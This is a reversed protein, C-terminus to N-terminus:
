ANTRPSTPRAPQDPARERAQPRRVAWAAGALALASAAASLRVTTVYLRDRADEGSPPVIEISLDREHPPLPLRAEVAAMTWQRSHRALLVAISAALLWVFARRRGPRRRLWVETALSALVVMLGLPVILFRSSVRQSAILPLHLAHVPAYLRGFSLFALVAMPLVVRRAGRLSRLAAPGAVLLWALAIPGVYADFEWWNLGGMSGSGRRPFTVDRLAVLGAFVDGLSAYGTEFAQDRRGLLIVAAPVLRVLGLGAAWLLTAVIASRAPVTPLLLLLLLVCWVFVHYSGQMLMAGLLLGVHIPWRGDRAGGALDLVRLFFFPLFFYGGWMSHGIAFHATIHGNFALLLWLTVLVPPSLGHRRGIALVGALGVAQLLLVNTFVFADISMWRLLIVQPSLVTEPIALFKRTEQIPRSIFYPVRGHQVAEQLISYYRIEKPWDGTERPLRPPIGFLFATHLVAMAILAALLAASARGSPPEQETVPQSSVLREGM